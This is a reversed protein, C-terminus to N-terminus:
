ETELSRILTIFILEIENFSKDEIEIDWTMYRNTETPPKRVIEFEKIQYFPKDYYSIHMEEPDRKGHKLTIESHNIMVQLNGVLNKCFLYNGGDNIKVGDFKQSIFRQLDELSKPKELIEKSVAVKEIYKTFYNYFKNYSELDTYFVGLERANLDSYEYLNMSSMLASSDNMYLKTHLNQIEFLKVGISNLYNYDKSKIERYYLEISVGNGIAKELAIMMKKWDAVKIFPSIAIFRKNSELLMSAIRAGIENPNLIDM